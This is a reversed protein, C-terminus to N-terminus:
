IYGHWFYFHSIFFTVWSVGSPEILYMQPGDEEISGLIMSVGFPRVSSYLTYAHVYGSVRETLHQHFFFNVFYYYRQTFKSNEGLYFHARFCALSLPVDCGMTLIGTLSSIM